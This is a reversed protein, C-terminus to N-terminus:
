NETISNTAVAQDFLDPSLPQYHSGFGVLVLVVV